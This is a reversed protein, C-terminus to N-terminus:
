LPYVTLIAGSNATPDGYDSYILLSIPFLTPVAGPTEGAALANLEKKLRFLM